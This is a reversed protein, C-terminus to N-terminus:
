RMIVLQGTERIELDDGVPTGRLVYLYVGNALSDGEEDRGGWDLIAVGGIAYNGGLFADSVRQVRRGSVTYIDWHLTMPGPIDCILRCPGPTPSPFVTVDRLKVLANDDLTFWVTDRGVNGWLDRAKMVAFHDGPDLDSLFNGSVRARRYSGPEFVVDDSVNIAFGSSDFEVTVTNASNTALINIGSSDALAASLPTGRKVIGRRRGNFNMTIQPGAMDGGSSAAVRVVPVQVHAVHPEGAADTVLLRIRGEEGTRLNLPAMFAATADAADMTGRGRFVPRGAEFWTFVEEGIELYEHVKVSEQVLLDYGAEYGNPLELTDLDAAIAHIQGTRISDASDPAFVLDGLPNPLHLAPDGLINYRRSNPISSAPDPFVAVKAAILAEGVTSTAVVEQNPYLALCFEDSLVDNYNTYSVWSAAISAVGGGQPANLFAEALCTSLPDAFVGVDCSFAMFFFRKDGNTLSPIDSMEFMFEDALLRVSGHGVYYFVTTGESMKAILDRRAGPKYIGVLPYDVGYVKDIDVTKPIYDNALDEAQMTHYRQGTQDIGNYRLDDASLLVRNRWLGDPTDEVFTVLRDVLDQSAAASNAPLRGIAIDPIDFDEDEAPADFEVLSEDAVYPAAFDFVRRHVKPFETVIDTPIWDGFGTTLDQGLANRHDTSADGLLCVWRLMQGHTEFHWRLFQRIARWDKQGGSFNAYIDEVTVPLAIPHDVGPLTRSRLAALDAAAGGFPKPHVVLYHAPGVTDRLPTVSEVCGVPVPLLDADDFLLLHRSVGPDRLLGVELSAPSGGDSTGLLRTAAAPDSVDWLRYETGAPLSFRLDTQTDPVTVEDGWFVCSLERSYASKDLTALYLLDFCDFALLKRREAYNNYALRIDNDGQILSTTSGAVRIAPQLDQEDDDWLVNVEHESDDNIRGTVDFTDSFGPYIACVDMQWDTAENEIVGDLRVTRQFASVIAADWAWNDDFWGIAPFENSEGHYRARHTTTSEVGFPPANVDPVRLPEGTFPSPTADNEWTLWYVGHDHQNHNYFDLKGAEPDFRDLWIDSGFGFFVLVDDTNWEHDGDGRLEVALENLGARDPQEDAIEPNRDLELGGGRFLRLTTPDVGELNVAMTELDHGSLAYIATETVELRVWNTALAFADDVTAIAPSTTESAAAIRLQRYLADNVVADPVPEGAVHRGAPSDAFAKSRRPMKSHTIEVVVGALIGGGATPAVAVSVLPVARYVGSARVAVPKATPDSPERYWQTSVVRWKPTERTATAVRWSYHPAVRTVEATAPDDIRDVLGTWDVVGVRQWDAPPTAVPFSVQVVTRAEDAVLVTRVPRAMVADAVAIPDQARTSLPLMLVTLLVVIMCAVDSRM